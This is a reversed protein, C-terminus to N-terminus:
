GGPVFGLRGDEILMKMREYDEWTDIDFCLHRMVFVAARHDLTVSDHGEEFFARRYFYFSGNIDYVAPAEQRSLFPSPPRKSLVVMGKGDDEVMNFYPNRHAPNVSFLVLADPKQQILAFASELDAQTRLPSSVDLDLVYDYRRANNQEAFHLAHRIAAVKGAAPGALDAPRRYDSHLGHAAAVAAIGESDTSLQIDAAHRAAFRNAAAISWAILPLGGIVQINKGPVGQSGGRACITILINM